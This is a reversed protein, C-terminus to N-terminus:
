NEKRINTEKVKHAFPRLLASQTPNRIRVSVSRIRIRGKFFQNKKDLDM